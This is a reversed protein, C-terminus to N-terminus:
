IPRRKLFSESRNSFNNSRYVLIVAAFYLGPIDAFSFLAHATQDHVGGLIASGSDVEPHFGIADPQALQFDSFQELGGLLIDVEVCFFNHSPSLSGLISLLLFGACRGGIALVVARLNVM